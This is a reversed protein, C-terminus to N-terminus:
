TTKNLHFPLQAILFDAAKQRILGSARIARIVDEPQHCPYTEERLRIWGPGFRLPVERFLICTPAPMTTVCLSYNGKLLRYVARIERDTM